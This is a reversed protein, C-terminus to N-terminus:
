GAPPTTWLSLCPANRGAAGSWEHESGDIQIREGLCARRNRPPHIEPPRQRKPVWHGAGTMLRRVTEKALVLGHCEALKECALTPRFDAYRDRIIDLARDALGPPLQDNGPCGRRRSVLGAPGEDRYRRVLRRLQCGTVGLREAGQGPKLHGDVVAQVTKLRDLERMSMTIAESTAM